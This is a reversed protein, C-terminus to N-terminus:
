RITSSSGSPKKPPPPQVYSSTDPQENVFQDEDGVAKKLRYLEDRLREVIQRAGPEGYINHLEESDKVLDHAEWQNVQPETIQVRVRHRTEGLSMVCNLTSLRFPEDFPGAATTDEQEELVSEPAFSQLGRVAVDDHM